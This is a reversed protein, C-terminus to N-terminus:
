IDFSIFRLARPIMVAFLRPESVCRVQVVDLPLGDQHSEGEM